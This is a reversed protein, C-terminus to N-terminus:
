KIGAGTLHLMYVTFNISTNFEWKTISPLYHSLNTGKVNVYYRIEKFSLM